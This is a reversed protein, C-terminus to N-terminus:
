FERKEMIKVSILYSSGVVATCVLLFILILVPLPSKQLVALLDLFMSYLAQSRSLLYAAAFVVGYVVMLVTRSKEVGYKMQVPILLSMITGIFIVSALIYPLEELVNFSEKKIFSVLFCILIGFLVGILNLMFFYIFKERVYTKRSIPLSFLFPFGNDMEDYSLTSIALMGMLMATYSIIFAGGMAFAMFISILLYYIVTRQRSFNLAFDKILLGKM